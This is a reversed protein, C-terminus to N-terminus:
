RASRLWFWWVLLAAALWLAIVLVAGARSVPQREAARAAAGHEAMVEAPVLKVALLVALPLLILEDM